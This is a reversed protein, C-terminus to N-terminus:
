WRDQQATWMSRYSGGLMTLYRHTGHEVITGKHFVIIDDAHSITSLRHAIVITTTDRSVGRLNRLIQQESNSDLSSTAEDLIFIRPKKLVARAIAIKQKEGGSLKLGGRTAYGHM